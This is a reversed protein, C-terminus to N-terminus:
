PNTQLEKIALNRLTDNDAIEQDNMTQMLMILAILMFGRQESTILAQNTGFIRICQTDLQAKTPLKLIAQDLTM